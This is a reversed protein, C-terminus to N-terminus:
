LEIILEGSDSKTIVAGMPSSRHTSPKWEQPPTYDAGTAIFHVFDHAQGTQIIVEDGAAATKSAWVMRTPHFPLNSPWLTYPLASGAGSHFNITWVNDNTVVDIGNAM